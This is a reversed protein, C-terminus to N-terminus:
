FKNLTSDSEPRSPRLRERLLLDSSCACYAVRGALIEDANSPDM